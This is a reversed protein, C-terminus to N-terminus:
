TQEERTRQMALTGPSHRSVMNYMVNNVFLIFLENLPEEELDDRTMRGLILWFYVDGVTIVKMM